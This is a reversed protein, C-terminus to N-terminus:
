ANAQCSGSRFSKRASRRLSDPTNYARRHAISPEWKYRRMAPPTEEPAYYMFIYTYYVNGRPAADIIAVLKYGPYLKDLEVQIPSFTDWNHRLKFVITFAFTGAAGIPRLAHEALFEIMKPATAEETEGPLTWPPDLYLISIRKSYGSSENYEGLALKLNDKIHTKMSKNSLIPPAGVKVGHRIQLARFENANKTLSEFRRKEEESEVKEISMVLAYYFIIMFSIMDFGICAFGNVITLTRNDIEKKMRPTQKMLDLIISNRYIGVDFDTVLKIDEYQMEVKFNGLEWELYESLYVNASSQVFRVSRAKQETTKEKKEGSAFGRGRDHYPQDLGKWDPRERDQKIRDAQSPRGMATQPRSSRQILQFIPNSSVSPDVKSSEIPKEGEEDIRTVRDRDRERWNFDSPRASYPRMSQRLGGELIYQM